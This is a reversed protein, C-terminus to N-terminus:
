WESKLHLHMHYNDNQGEWYYVFDVYEENSDEYNWEGTIKDQGDFVLEISKSSYEYFTFDSETGSSYIKGYGSDNFQIEDGAGYNISPDDVSDIVWRTNVINAPDNFYPSKNGDDDDDDDDCSVLTMSILVAVLAMGIM